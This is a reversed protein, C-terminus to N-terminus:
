FWAFTNQTYIYFWALNLSLDNYVSKEVLIVTLGPVGRRNHLNHVACGNVEDRLHITGGPTASDMAVQESNEFNCPIILSNKM